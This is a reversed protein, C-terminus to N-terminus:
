RVVTAVENYRQNLNAGLQTIAAVCVMVIFALMIAYEVATPGSEDQLLRLCRNKLSTM